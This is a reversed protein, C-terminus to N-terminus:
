KHFFTEKIFIFPRKYWPTHLQDPITLATKDAVFDMNPCWIIKSNKIFYHSKCNYAGNGISPSLSICDGDYTLTWGHNRSLPTIIEENCGCPCLHSCVNHEIDIYVTNSKISSLEPIENVFFYDIKPRYM